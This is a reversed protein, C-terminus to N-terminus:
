DTKRKLAVFGGEGPTFLLPGVQFVPDYNKTIWSWVDQAYDRGFYPIGLYSFNQNVVVIWNPPNKELKGVISEKGELMWVAPNYSFERVPSKRRLLYNVMPADPVTWLTDDPKLLPRFNILFSLMNHGRVSHSLDIDYILDAGGGIPLNKKVYSSSTQNVMAVCFAGLLTFVAARFVRSSGYNHDLINPIEHTCFHVVVLTAPFALAFGYHYVHVNFIMKGMILFAFMSFSFLLLRRHSEEPDHSFIRATVSMWILIGLLIFPLPRLLEMWPIWDWFLILLLLTSGATAANVVVPSGNRFMRTVGILIILLLTFVTAYMVMTSINGLTNNTGMIWQYLPVDRFGPMIVFAWPQVILEVADSFPVALSFLGVGVLPAIGMCSFFKLAWWLTRTWPWNKANCAFILGLGIAPLLALFVEVKTLFVLGVLGGMVYIRWSQDRTLFQSFHYLVLISLFIGHVLDYVYPTVFNYNGVHGYQSFGFALLFIATALTASIRNGMREFIIFLILTLLALLGLHFLALTLLGVDFFHFLAGNLYASFPGYSYFLDRYLLDGQSIRWALYLQQGYDIIVDPWRLWSVWTLSAFVLTLLGFIITGSLPQSTSDQQVQNEPSSPSEIIIGGFDSIFNLFLRYLLPYGM